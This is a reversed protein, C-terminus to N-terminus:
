PNFILDGCKCKWSMPKYNSADDGRAYAVNSFTSSSYNRNGHNIQPNTPVQIAECHGCTSCRKECRPPRSGIQSRMLMKEENVTQSFSASKPTARGEAKFRVQTSSSILLFMFSITVYGLRQCLLFSHHTCDSCGM